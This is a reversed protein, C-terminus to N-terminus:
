GGPLAGAVRAAVASANQVCNGLSVGFLLNGSVFLGPHAAELAAAAEKHRGHGVNYQPIAPCWREVRSVVPDGKLGLLPKLDALTKELIEAEPAGAREPHVAGGVFCTLAVHGEPARGPFLSSPFLCGLVHRGEVEPCLFGFGVLSHDVQERRFGLCVCAVDAYSLDSIGPAFAGGLPTLAASAAKSPLACVVSRAWLSVDGSSGRAEVVFGPGERRVALVETGPRWGEGLAAALTRPLEELGDPFSFLGGAPAPGKRKALAGRILSGHKEELAYIKSVAHRVSLKAPDGAYVGSVFPGVAYDLFERGLRRTVFQAISEELDPPAAKVFPERFLGLKTGLSFLPTAAFGFPGGPLRVPKGGRVIYRVKATPTATLRRELLGAKACLEDIEFANNLVTNPGLEFLFGDKKWTRICGGPRESAELLAVSHGREKLLFAATLGSIGGGLVLVDFRDTM